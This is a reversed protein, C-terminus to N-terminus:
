FLTFRMGYFLLYALNFAFDAGILCLLVADITVLRKREIRQIRALLPTFVFRMFLTILAGWLLTPLLAVYGFLNWPDASYDWLPANWLESFLFATFLEVTAAFLATVSFYLIYRAARNATVPLNFIRMKDPTDFALYIFLVSIGYIPCLPLLLFGRDNLNGILLAYGTEGLWGFFSLLITSMLLASLSYFQIKTRTRKM